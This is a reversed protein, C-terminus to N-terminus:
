LMSHNQTRSAIIEGIRTFVKFSHVSEFGSVQPSKNVELVVPGEPTHIMDVGAFDIGCAWAAQLALTRENQTPEYPAAIGGQSVNNLFGQTRTRSISGLVTDEFVLTRTDFTNEIFPQALGLVWPKKIAVLERLEDFSNILHVCRGKNGDIKFVAPFTLHKAIYLANARFSEERFIFTEPVRINHESLMLMQAIKGASGKYSRHIPDNTPIQHRACYESLMGCFHADNGRLRIFLYAAHLDIPINHDVFTPTLGRKIHLLLHKSKYSHMDADPFGAKLATRTHPGCNICIYPHKM